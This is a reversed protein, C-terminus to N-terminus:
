ELEEEEKNDFIKVVNISLIAPQVVIPTEIAVITLITLAKIIEVTPVVELIEKEDIERIPKGKGDITFLYWKKIYFLL